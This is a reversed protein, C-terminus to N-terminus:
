LGPDPQIGPLVVRVRPERKFSTACRAQRCVSAVGPSNAASGSTAWTPNECALRLDEAGNQTAPNASAPWAKPRAEAAQAALAAIDGHEYTVLIQSLLPVASTASLQLRQALARLWLQELVDCLRQRMEPTVHTYIADMGPMAHGRRDMQVVKHLDAADLWTAHTHRDGHPTYRTASRGDAAVAPQAPGPAVVTIPVATGYDRAIELLQEDGMGAQGRRGSRGGRYWSSRGEHGRKLSAVNKIAARRRQFVDWSRERRPSIWFEFAGECM